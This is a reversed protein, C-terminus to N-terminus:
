VWIVAEMSRNYLDIYYLDNFGIADLHIIFGMCVHMCCVERSALLGYIGGVM